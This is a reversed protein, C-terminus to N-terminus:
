RRPLPTPTPAPHGLGPPSRGGGVPPPWAGSWRPRRGCRLWAPLLATSGGYEHDGPVSELHQRPWRIHPPDEVGVRLEGLRHGLEGGAGVVLHHDQGAVVVPLQGPVASRYRDEPFAQADLLECKDAIQHHARGAAGLPHPHHVPVLGIGVVREFVRPRRHVGREAMVHDTVQQGLQLRALRRPRQEFPDLQQVSVDGVEDAGTEEVALDDSLQPQHRNGEHGDQEEAQQGEKGADVLDKVMVGLPPQESEPEQHGEDQHNGRNGGPRGQEPDVTGEALRRHARAGVRGGVVGRGPRLRSAQDGLAVRPHHGPVGVLGFERHHAVAEVGVGTAAGGRHHASPRAQPQRVREDGHM